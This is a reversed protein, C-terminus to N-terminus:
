RGFLVGYGDIDKLSPRVIIRRNICRDPYFGTPQPITKAFVIGAVTLVIQEVDLHGFAAINDDECNAIRFFTGALSEM